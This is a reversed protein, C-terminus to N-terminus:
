KNVSNNRTMICSKKDMEICIPLIPIDSSASDPDDRRGLSNSSIECLHAVNRLALVVPSRPFRRAAATVFNVM